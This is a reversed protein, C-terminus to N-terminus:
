FSVSFRGNDIVAAGISGPSLQSRLTGLIAGKVHHSDIEDIRVSMLRGPESFFYSTNDNWQKKPSTFTFSDLHDVGYQANSYSSARIPQDSSLVLEFFSAGNDSEGQLKLQYRNNLNALSANLMNGAYLAYNGSNNNINFAWKNISDKQPRYNKVRCSFSGLSIPSNDINTGSFVGRIVNGEVSNIIVRMTETSGTLIHYASPLYFSFGVNGESAEYVGPKITGGTRILLRAIQDAYGNYTVGEMVLTNSELSAVNFYGHTSLHNPHSFSFLKPENTGKGIELSIKGNKVEAFTSSWNTNTNPPIRVNGTFSALMKGNIFTDIVLELRAWQDGSRAIQLDTGSTDFIMLIQDLPKQISAPYFFRNINLGLHLNALKNDSTGNLKLATDPHSWEPHLQESWSTDITGAYHVGDLDFEWRNSVTLGPPEPIPPQQTPPGTPPLPIIIEGDPKQCSFNIFLGFIFSVLISVKYTKVNNPKLM